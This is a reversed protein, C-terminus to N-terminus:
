SNGLKINIANKLLNQLVASFLAIMGSSFTIILGIILIGPNAANLSLLTIFGAVYMCSIITACYKIYKLAKVTLESFATGKDIYSLMRFAQYLAYFFPIATLYLGILLLYQLYAFAPYMRAFLDAQWPLWYICLALVTIGTIFLSM